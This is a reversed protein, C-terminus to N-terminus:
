LQFLATRCTSPLRPSSDTIDGENQKSTQRGRPGRSVSTGWPSGNQAVHGQGEQSTENVGIAILRGHGESESDGDRVKVERRQQLVM